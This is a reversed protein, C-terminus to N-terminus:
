SPNAPANKKPEEPPFYTPDLEVKAGARLKEIAADLADRQISERLAPKVADMGQTTKKGVKLIHIGFETRIPQSVDGEKMKSVAAALEPPLMAPSVPGLFGGRSATQTDDSARQAVQGFDNGAAIAQRIVKAKEMGQEATPTEGQRAQVPGGKIAVLIHSLEVGEVNKKQKEYEQKLQADTPEAVLKTAALQAILNTRGVAIRDVVRPDRDLGQRKGEQELAKIRVVEQAFARRGEPSSFFPRAQEPMQELFLQFERETIPDGNVRMVVKDTSAGKESTSAVTAPVKESPEPSKFDFGRVAALGVCIAIIIVVGVVTYLTDKRV